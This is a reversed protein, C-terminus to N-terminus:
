RTERDRSRLSDRRSTVDSASSTSGSADQPPRV